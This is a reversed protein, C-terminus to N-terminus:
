RIDDNITFAYSGMTQNAYSFNGADKRSWDRGNITIIGTGYSNSHQTDFDETWTDRVQGWGSYGFAMLVVILFLTLKKM